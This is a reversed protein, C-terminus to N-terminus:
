RVERVTRLSASFKASCYAPPSGAAPKCEAESAYASRSVALALAQMGTPSVALDLFPGATQGVLQALDRESASFVVLLQDEGVPGSAVLKWGPRPLDLTQGARVRHDRDAVNPFLMLANKGEESTQFVYVYGDAPAKIKMRLAEVDIKLTDPTDVLVPSAPDARAAIAAFAQQPNVVRPWGLSTLASSVAAAKPSAPRNALTGQAASALLQQKVAPSLDARVPRTSLDGTIIMHHPKFMTVNALSQEIGQQACARIADVTKAEGNAPVMCRLFNSTALGGNKADDLSIEDARAAAAYIYRNGTARTGAPPQMMNVIESCNSVDGIAVFKPTFRQQGAVERTSSLGGSHCSDFFVFLGDTIKALPQLLQSMEASTLAQADWTILGEICRGPKDPDAQRSGHGSYYVLVPDGEKIEKALQTLIATMSAKTLQDDRYISIHDESIGMLQAMAVASNMDHPVGELTPIGKGSQYRSIGFVVARGRGGAVTAEAPFSAALPAAPAAAAVPAPAATSSGGIVPALPSPTDVKEIFARSMWGEKGAWRVKWWTGDRQLFEVKEGSPVAGVSTAFLKPETYLDHGPFNVVGYVAQALAPLALLWLLAALAFRWPKLKNSHM